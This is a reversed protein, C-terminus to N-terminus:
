QHGQCFPEDNIGIYNNLSKSMKEVGTLGLLKAKSVIVDKKFTECRKGRTSGDTFKVANKNVIVGHKVKVPSSKLLQVLKSEKFVKKKVPSPAVVKKVSYSPSLTIITVDFPSHTFIM